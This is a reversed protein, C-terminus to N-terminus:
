RRQAAVLDLVADLGDKIRVETDPFSEEIDMQVHEWCFIDVAAALGAADNYRADVLAGDRFFLVGREGSGAATVRLACSKREMDILQAMTELPVAQFVGGGRQEELVELIRAVLDASAIPKRLFGAAGELLGRQRADPSDFATIIVAPIEPFRVSMQAVLEFGDMEPMQLDTVVLSITERTLLDLAEKGNGAIMLSFDGVRQQVYRQFSMCMIPDDDVLLVTKIM